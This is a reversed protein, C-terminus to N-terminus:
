RRRARRLRTMASESRIASLTMATLLPAYKAVCCPLLLVQIANQSPSYSPASDDEFHPTRREPMAPNVMIPGPRSCVPRQKSAAFPASQVASARTARREIRQRQRAPTLGTSLQVTRFHSRRSRSPALPSTHSSIGCTNNTDRQTLYRSARHRHNNLPKQKRANPNYVRHHSPRFALSHSICKPRSAKDSTVHPKDEGAALRPRDLFV